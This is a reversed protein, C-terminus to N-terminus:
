LVALTQTVLFLLVVEVAVQQQLLELCLTAVTREQVVTPLQVLLVLVL